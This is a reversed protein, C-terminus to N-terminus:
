LDCLMPHGPVSTPGCACAYNDPNMGLEPGLEDWMEPTEGCLAVRTCPSRRGIEAMFFRYVRARAEHPFVQKGNPLIPRPRDEPEIQAYHDVYGLFEDDWLSVDFMDRVRRPEIWKFMDMTVLNIRANAFLADLMRLNEERWNRIPFIPSFRVRVSYGADQCTRIAQIRAATSPANKEIERAATECSLTWCVLTHGRHDLETLYGVNDSKTYVMLYQQRRTAFLEALLKTAGYEPELTPIDTHNDYKYLKCWPTDDLLQRLRRVYEEMNLMIHFFTGINCYDCYHLCGWASHLEYADTCIGFQTKRTARGNRLTWAGNGLFYYSKLHPYRQQLTKLEDPSPWTFANFILSPDGTRKLEGTRRGGIDPWGQSRSTENLEEDTVVEPKPGYDIAALMRDMRAVCDPRDLVRKHVYIKPPRILYVSPEGKEPLM